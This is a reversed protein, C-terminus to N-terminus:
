FATLKPQGSQLSPQCGNERKRSWKHTWIGQSYRSYYESGRQVPARNLIIGTPTSDAHDLKRIAECVVHASTGCSVVLCIADVLDAVSLTDSVPRIPASDIVVHDFKESAQKVLKAFAESGLLEAPTDLRTGACLVFLKDTDTVLVADDLDTRALLLESLGDVPTGDVFMKDISPKRLDADILLTKLGMQAFAVACNIACFSKGEHALASTFLYTKHRGRKGLLSLSVRLSRFSEAIASGPQEILLLDDTLCKPRRTCTPIVGLAPLGLQNEAEEATKVSPNLLISLIALGVGLGLGGLLSLLLVRKKDPAVPRDPLLPHSVVQIRDQSDEKIVDTEKLRTLLSDYLARDSEVAQRLLNYTIFVKNLGLAANEQEQLAKQMKEETAVASKYASTLEDAAKLIMQNLEAKFENLRRVVSPTTGQGPKYIENMAAVDGEHQAVNKQTEIVVPSNAISPIALLASPTATGLKTLQEYDAELKLRNAKAETVIRNLADMKEIVINDKNGLLAVDLHQEKYAQLAEESKSLEAQLHEAQTQLFAHMTDSAEVHQQFNQHVFEAILLDAIKQALRPSRDDVNIDILLTDRRVQVTVHKALEEVMQKASAPRRRGPLFEPDKDLNNHTILNLLLEPSTLAQEITKRTQDGLTADQNQSLTNDDRLVKQTAPQVEIIAQARYVKPTFNIYAAGAIAAGSACLILLWMKERLLSLTKRLDSGLSQGPIQRAINNM